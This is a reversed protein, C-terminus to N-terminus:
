GARGLCRGRATMDAVNILAVSLWRDSKLRSFGLFPVSWTARDCTVDSGHRPLQSRASGCSTSQHSDTFKCSVCTSRNFMFVLISCQVIGLFGVCGVSYGCSIRLRLSSKNAVLTSPRFGGTIGDQFTWLKLYWFEPKGRTEEKACAARKQEAFTKRKIGISQGGSSRHLGRFRKWVGVM